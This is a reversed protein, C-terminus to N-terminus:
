AAKQLIGVPFHRGVLTDSVDVTAVDGAILLREAETDTSAMLGAIRRRFWRDDVFPAAGDKQYMEDRDVSHEETEVVVLMREKHNHSPHAADSYLVELAEPAEKKMTERTAVPDFTGFLGSKVLDAQRERVLQYTRRQIFDEGNEGWLTAVTGDLLSPSSDAGNWAAAGNHMAKEKNMWAGCETTYDSAFAIDSTHGGDEYGNDALFNGVIIRAQEYSTFEGLGSWEGLLAMMTAMDYLGGAMKAKVPPKIYDPMTGDVAVQSATCRCGRGDICVASKQHQPEIKVVHQKINALYTEAESQDTIDSVIRGTDDSGIDLFGVFQADVRMWDKEQNIETEM